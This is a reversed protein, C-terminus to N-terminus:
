WDVEVDYDDGGPGPDAIEFVLRYNNKESPSEVVSVRGRGRLKHIQPVLDGRQPLPRLIEAHQGKVPAGDLVEAFSAGGQVTVRVRGTVTGTWEMGRGTPEPIPPSEKLQKSSMRNWVLTFSYDGSGTQPDRIAVRATYHNRERPQDILRVDGRGEPFELRVDLDRDPMPKSFKYAEGSVPAGAESSSSCTREHCSIVASEDVRGSWSVQDTKERSEFANNSTDWYLAISYFSSGPQADEVSVALTYRNEINPQDLIHVYGRGELVQVRANQQTQPLADAFHFKQREVPAGGAVQVALTKATLRLIATGDVQGQWIFQPHDQAALRLM